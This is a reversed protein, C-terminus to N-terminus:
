CQLLQNFCLCVRDERDDLVQRLVCCWSPLVHCCLPDQKRCVSGHEDPRPLLSRGSSTAEKCSPTAVSKDNEKIKGPGKEDKDNQVVTDISHVDRTIVSVVGDSPERQTRRATLGIQKQCSTVHQPFVLLVSSFPDIVM